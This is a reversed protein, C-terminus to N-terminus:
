RAHLFDEVIINACYKMGDLTGFQEHIKDYVKPPKKKGEPVESMFQELSYKRSDWIYALGMKSITKINFFIEPHDEEEYDPCVLPTGTLNALWITNWAARAFVQDVSPHAIYRPPHVRDEAFGCSQDNTFITQPLRFAEEYLPSLGPIGSVSIYIGRELPETPVKPLPILPPTERETEFLPQYNEKFSLCRPVPQFHLRFDVEMERVAFVAKEVLKYDIGSVEERGLLEEFISSYYSVSSYYSYELGMSVVPNRTVELQINRPELHLGSGNLDVAMLSSKLLDGLQKKQNKYVRLFTSLEEKFRGGSFLLPRLADGMDISLFVKDWLNPEDSAEERLIRLQDKGYVWPFVICVSEGLSVELQQRVLRALNFTRM